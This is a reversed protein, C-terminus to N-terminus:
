ERVWVRLQGGGVARPATLPKMGQGIQRMAALLDPRDEWGYRREHADIIAADDPWTAVDPRLDILAQIEGPREVIAGPYLVVGHVNANRRAIRFVSLLQSEDVVGDACLIAIAADAPVGAERLAGNLALVEITRGDPRSALPFREGVWEEPLPSRHELLWAGVGEGMGEGPRATVVAPVTVAVALVAALGARWRAGPVGLSGMGVRGGNGCVMAAALVALSPLLPLTYFPQRKPILTFLVLGAAAWLFVDRVREDGWRTAGWGLSAIFLLGGVLGVQSDLMVLAYHVLWLAPHLREELEQGDAGVEGALLQPGWEALYGRASLGYWWGVTLLLGVALLVVNRRTAGDERGRWATWAVPLAVVPLAGLRDAMLGLALCVGLVGVMRRDRLGDSWLWAAFCGAAAATAGLNGEFRHMADLVGAAAFVLAVAFTAGWESTVRRAAVWTGLGLLPAWLLAQALLMARYGGGAWLALVGPLRMLPPYYDGLLLARM